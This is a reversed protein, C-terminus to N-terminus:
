DGSCNFNTMEDKFIQTLNHWIKHWYTVVGEGKADKQHQVFICAPVYTSNMATKALTNKPMCNARLAQRWAQKEMVFSKTM